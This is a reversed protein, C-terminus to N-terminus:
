GYVSGYVANLAEVQDRTRAFTDISLELIEMTALPEQGARKAIMMVTSVVDTVPCRVSFSQTAGPGTSLYGTVLPPTITLTVYFAGSRAVQFNIRSTASTKGYLAKPYANADM